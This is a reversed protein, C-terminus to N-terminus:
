IRWFIISVSFIFWISLPVIITLLVFLLNVIIQEIKSKIIFRHRRKNLEKLLMM